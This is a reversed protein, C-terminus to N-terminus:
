TNVIKSNRMGNFTFHKWYTRNIIELVNAIINLNLM